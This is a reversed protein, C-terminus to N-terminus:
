QTFHSQSEYKTVEINLEHLKKKMLVHCHETLQRVQVKSNNYKQTNIPSLMEIIVIGNSWRNLKIKNTTNSICIPVIPIKATIAAYFAGTKFPLLGRGRNRTGEPFIWIS